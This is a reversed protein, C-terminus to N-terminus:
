YLIGNGQPRLHIKGRGIDLILNHVLIRPLGKNGFLRVGEAGEGPGGHQLVLATDSEPHRGIVLPAPGIGALRHRGQHGRFGAQAQPPHLLTFGDGFGNVKKSGPVEGDAPRFKDEPIGPGPLLLDQGLNGIAAVPPKRTRLLRAPLFDQDPHHVRGSLGVGARGDPHLYRGLGQEEQLPHTGVLHHRPRHLQRDGAIHGQRTNLKVEDVGLRPGPLGDGTPIVRPCLVGPCRGGLALPVELGLPGRRCPLPHGAFPYGEPNVQTLKVRGARHHFLIFEQVQGGAQGALGPLLRAHRGGELRGLGNQFRTPALTHGHVFVCALEGEIEKADLPRTRGARNNGVGPLLVVALGVPDVGVEPGVVADLLAPGVM